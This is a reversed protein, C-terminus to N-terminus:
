SQAEEASIRHDALCLITGLWALEYYGYRDVLRWFRDAMDLVLTGESINTASKIEHGDFTYSYMPMDPDNIVPLLPRGWGHHTGILHLVLDEDCAADLVNKCSELMAVSAVEHRMGEPYRSTTNRVGPLSKALPEQQMAQKVPDNGVLKEQFRPDAKGIDHLRGALRLDNVFDTLGLRAAIQGAREGVGDLHRRLTVGTCIMSNAEDSGDMTSHEVVPKRTYRHMKALVYYSKSNNAVTIIEFDAGLLKIADLMWKPRDKDNQLIDLWERITEHKPLVSETESAPTPLDDDYGYEPISNDLRLTVKRSHGYQARDGLDTVPKISSPDWTGDTLGGRAPDVVLVDGGKIDALKIGETAGKKIGDWRVFTAATRDTRSAINRSVPEDQDTDAVNVEENASLWAKAAYIPVQLYEAQRPTVHRLAQKSRDHRWVISVDPVHNTDMGHLFWEVASQAGPEPNTQIWADMHTRLLLPADLTPAASGKPFDALALPSVDVLKNKRRRELKKWTIRTSDGYIIDPKKSKVVSKPGLIWAKAPARSRAFYHGRRDLRGFRQRLSDIAACETIMADFSIDAGVEISQTAVVITLENPRNENDPDIIDHIEEMKEERDLPRMRGTILHAAYNADVITQYTLRATRVFNVVVGVSRIQTDADRNKNISRIIELVANPISDQNQITVLEAQKEAKVRRSMETCKELDEAEDLTFRESDACDPTASMQIVKFRRNLKNSPHVKRVEPGMNAVQELTQAFPVSLHVEDLIVLCDNGALGAHIPRMKRSVGYGRFLLRSGFQDVTSVIVQPQDPRHAWEGDIPIGGRLEAVGLPRNGGSMNRLRDRVIRTIKTKGEEIRNRIRVAREYVQHVVIRRDVVFVIRRPSVDPKAVLAFIAMDLVATKGVGTPLDIVAPWDGGLVREMLRRQWPFPKPGHNPNQGSKPEPRNVEMFFDVFDNITLVTNADSTRDTDRKM